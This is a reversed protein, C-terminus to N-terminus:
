LAGKYILLVQWCYDFQDGLFGGELEEKGSLGAKAVAQAPPVSPVAGTNGAWLRTWLM